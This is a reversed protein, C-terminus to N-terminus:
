HAAIIPTTEHLNQDTSTTANAELKSRERQVLVFIGVFVTWAFQPRVVTSSETLNVMFMMALFALPFIGSLSTTQRLLQLAQYSVLVYCLLFLVTGLIGIDLLLDLFGNHAHPAQWGFERWVVEAGGGKTWFAGYGHGLFPRDRVSLLCEHWLDTRGSLTADKGLSGLLQDFNDSVITVVSGSCFIFFTLIPLMWSYKLRLSKLLLILLSITLSIVLATKSNSLILNLALIVLCFYKVIYMQKRIPTLCLCLLGLVMSRGLYNKHSYIGRWSGFHKIDEGSLIIGKGMVGYQPLVLGFVLSLAGSIMFATSLITLSKNLDFRIGLYLGLLTCRIFPLCKQISLGPADSWFITGIVFTVVTMLPWLKQLAPIFTRWHILLLLLTTLTTTHYILKEITLSIRYDFQMLFLISSSYFVIAFICFSKEFIYFYQDVTQAARKDM